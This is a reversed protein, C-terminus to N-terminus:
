PMSGSLVVYISTNFEGRHYVIDGRNYRLIRGNNAVIDALALDEPFDGEDIDRFFPLSLLESVVDPRMRERGFPADWRRPKKVLQVQALHEEV